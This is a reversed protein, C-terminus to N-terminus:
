IVEKIKAKTKDYTYGEIRIDLYQIFDDLMERTMHSDQLSSVATGKDHAYDGWIEKLWVRAKEKQKETPKKEFFKKYVRSYVSMVKFKDPKAKENGIVTDEAMDQTFHSSLGSIGLTADIMARKKAIKLKTNFMDLPNAKGVNKEKTHAMGVGEAIIVPENNNSRDNITLICKYRYSAFEKGEDYCEIVNLEEYRPSIGLTLLIKEAGPKLLTPKKTGPITGYDIGTTMAEKAQKAFENIGNIKALSGNVMEFAVTTERSVNQIEKTAM